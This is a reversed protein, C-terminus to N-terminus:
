RLSCCLLFHSEIEVAAEVEFTDSLSQCAFCKEVLLLLPDTDYLDQCIILWNLTALLHM